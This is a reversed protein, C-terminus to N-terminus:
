IIPAQMTAAAYRHQTYPNPTDRNYAAIIDNWAYDTTTFGQTTYLAM